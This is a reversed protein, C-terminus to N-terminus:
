VNKRIRSFQSAVIFAERPTRKDLKAKCTNIDHLVMYLTRGEWERMILDVTYQEEKLINFNSKCELQRDQWANICRFILDNAFRGKGATKIAHWSYIM